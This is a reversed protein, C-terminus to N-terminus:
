ITPRSCPKVCWAARGNRAGTAARVAPCISGRRPTAAAETEVTTFRTRAEIPRGFKIAM